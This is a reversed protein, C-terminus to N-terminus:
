GAALPAAAPPSPQGDPEGAKIEEEVNWKQSFGWMAVTILLMQVPILGLTVIGLLADPLAPVAYGAKDRAFWSPGAVLAFIGLIVAVGSIVPLVGRNWKYVFGIFIAYVFMMSIHLAKAGVLTSWGGVAVILLMLITLALLAIVGFRATQAEPLDRNPHRVPPKQESAKVDEWLM